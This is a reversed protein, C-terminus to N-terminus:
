RVDVPPEAETLARLEAALAGAEAAGIKRFIEQAQRLSAQASAIRGDALDCRGVGALACAEDQSSGIERALHLARSHCTRAQDLDGRIRLLTGTENLAEAEGERDGLDRYDRHDPGARRLQHDM